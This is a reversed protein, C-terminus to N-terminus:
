KKGYGSIEFIPKLGKHQEDMFKGFDNGNRIKIGFGNKKMFDKFEQTKYVKNFADILTNVVAKPTKLPVAFGRWTTYTWDVGQEKLTPVDSFDPNRKEAMLGLCKLKGGEIQPAAEPYSCTIVDIHGGLLETIAPAAGKTPIYKVRKPDIGYKNLLGIRALDWVSGLSAGSFTFTGAPKAKIDNLLEKVSNYPSDVKVVVSAANDNFQSVPVFNAPSIDSYGLYKFSGLEFTVNCITYGDPKANAGFSHGTTGGGGTKNVVNVPQGLEKSLLESIFRATRDTGGGPSWPCILTIPKSPFKDKKSWWANVLLLFCLVIAVTIVIKKM